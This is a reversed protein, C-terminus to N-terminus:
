RLIRVRVARRWRRNPEPTCRTAVAKQARSIRETSPGANKSEGEFGGFFGTLNSPTAYTFLQGHSFQYMDTPDLAEIGLAGSGAFLDLVRAGPLRPMLSSFLAERVRDTTPRVDEGKPARLARRKFRGGIIRM